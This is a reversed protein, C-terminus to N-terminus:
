YPYEGDASDEPDDRVYVDNPTGKRRRLREKRDSEAQRAMREAKTSRQPNEAALELVGAFAMVIDDHSGASAKAKNRRDVIFTVMENALLAYRLHAPHDRLFTRLNELMLPRTAETTAWGQKWTWEGTATDLQRRRYIRRYRMEKLVRLVVLGYGGTVEPAILANDYLWGLRALDAGFVDIDMQARYVASCTLERCDWVVAVNYDQAAERNNNFAAIEEDSVDGAVDAFIAYRHGEKRPQFVTLPGGDPDHVMQVARKGTDTKTEEIRGILKPEVKSAIKSFNTILQPRFFQAGSAVFAEEATIPYERHLTDLNGRCKGKLTFRRWALQELTLNFTAKLELEEDDLDNPFGSPWLREERVYFPYEHWGAFIPIFDSRGDVANQWEIHFPDGMGHATSEVIAATGPEDPIAQLLADLSTTLDPYYAAESLHGQWVAFGRAIQRTGATWTRLSSGHQFRLTHGVGGGPKQTPRLPGPLNAYADESMGHLEKTTEDLNAITLTSVNRWVCTRHFFRMQIATSFGMQRAKVIIARFPRGLTDAEDWPDYLRAQQVANIVSGFPVYEREYRHRIKLHQSFSPWRLAPHVETAVAM